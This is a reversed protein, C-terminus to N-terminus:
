YVITGGCYTFLFGTTSRRKQQDNSSTDNFFAMLKPLNIDVPFELLTEHVVQVVHRM